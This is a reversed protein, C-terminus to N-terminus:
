EFRTHAKVFESMVDSNEAMEATCDTTDTTTRGLHRGRQDKFELRISVIDPDGAFQSLMLALAASRTPIARNPDSSAIVTASIFQGAHGGVNGVQLDAVNVGFELGLRQVPGLKEARFAQMTEPLLDIARTNQPLRSKAIVSELAIDLAADMARGTENPAACNACFPAVMPTRGGCAPCNVMVLTASGPSLVDDLHVLARLPIFEKSSSFSVSLGNLRVFEGLAPHAFHTTHGTLANGTRRVSIDGAEALAVAPPSKPSLLLRRRDEATGEALEQTWEQYAFLEHLFRRFSDNGWVVRAPSTEVRALFLGNFGFSTSGTEQDTVLTVGASQMAARVEPPVVDSFGRGESV